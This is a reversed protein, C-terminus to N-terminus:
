GWEVWVWVGDLGFMENHKIGGQMGWVSIHTPNVYHDIDITIVHDCFYLLDLELMFFIIDFFSFSNASM